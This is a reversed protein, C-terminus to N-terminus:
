RDKCSIEKWFFGLRIKGIRAQFKRVKGLRVVSTQIWILDQIIDMICIVAALKFNRTIESQKFHKIASIKFNQVYFYFYLKNEEM